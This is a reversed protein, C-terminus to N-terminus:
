GESSIWAERGEAIKRDREERASELSCPLGVAVKGDDGLWKARYVGQPLPDAVYYPPNMPFTISNNMKAGASRLLWVVGFRLQM